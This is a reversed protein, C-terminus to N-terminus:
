FTQKRNKPKSHPGNKRVVSNPSKKGLRSDRDDSPPEFGPLFEANLVYNNGNKILRRVDPKVAWQRWKNFWNPHCGWSEGLKSHVIPEGPKFHKQAITLLRAFTDSEGPLRAQRAHSGPEPVEAFIDDEGWCFYFRESKAKRLLVDLMRTSDNEERQTRSVIVVSDAMRGTLTSGYINDRGSYVETGKSKASGFSCILALNRKKAVDQVGGLASEVLDPDIMKSPVWLDMGEIALIRIEPHLRAYEDIVSAPPSIKKERPLEVFRSFFVAYEEPYTLAFDKYEGTLGFQQMWTEAADELSRDRLLVLYDAQTTKHGCFDRGARVDELLQCLWYSKGSGSLGAIVSIKGFGFWGKGAGAKLGHVVSGINQPLPPASVSRGCRECLPATLGPEGAELAEVDATSTM